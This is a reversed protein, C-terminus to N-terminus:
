RLLVTALAYKGEEVQQIIEGRMAGHIFSDGVLHYVGPEDSQRIIYPVSAGPFVCCIDNLEAFRPTLVLRRAETHALRRNHCSEIKKAFRRIPRGPSSKNPGADTDLRLSFATAERMLRRYQSFKKRLRPMRVGSNKISQTAPLERCLTVMFVDELRETHPCSGLVTEWLYEIPSRSKQRFTEEWDKPNFSFNKESLPESVWSLRDFIVGQMALLRRASHYHTTFTQTSGGSWYWNYPVALPVTWYGQDWRPVWSPRGGDTFVNAVSSHDVAGLLFSAERPHRLLACAIDLYVADVTKTYDPELILGGETLALSSGLLGYIRDRPDSVKLKRGTRLVDIFSEDQRNAAAMNSYWACLPLDTRWTLTNGLTCQNQIFIDSWKLVVQPCILQTFDPRCRLWQVLEVVEAFRIHAKGWLMICDKALGAEQVVWLRDFWSMEYLTAINEWIRPDDSFPYPTVIPIRTPDEYRPLLPGWCRNVEQILDFCGKAIREKDPDLYVLVRKANEYVRGMQKIQHGKEENDNQNICISDAWLARRGATHRIFKLALELSAPIHHQISNCSISKLDNPDGWVYSIAEYTDAADSLSVIRLNCILPDEENGPELELVRIFNDVVAESYLNSVSVDTSGPPSNAM